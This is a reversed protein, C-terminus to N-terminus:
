PLDDAPTFTVRVGLPAEGFKILIEICRKDDDIVGVEQAWDLTAKTRNDIDANKRLKQRNIVLQLKFTSMITHWRRGVRQRLLEASAEQKWKRYVATIHHVIQGTAKNRGRRWIRNVSPPMPLDITIEGSNHGISPVFDTM